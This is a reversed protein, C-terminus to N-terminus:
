ALATELALKRERLQIEWRIAYAFSDALQNMADPNCDPWASDIVVLEEDLSTHWTRLQELLSDLETSIARLPANLLAKSLASSAARQKEVLADTRQIFASVKTFLDDAKPPLSGASIAGALVRLRKAPDRLINAAEGIERFKGVDGKLQDPHLEGALKRYADGIEEESLLPRRPLTLIVFPDSM